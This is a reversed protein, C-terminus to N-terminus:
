CRSCKLIIEFVKVKINTIRFLLYTDQREQLGTFGTESLLICAAFTRM